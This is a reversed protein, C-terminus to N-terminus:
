LLMFEVIVLALKGTRKEETTFRFMHLLPSDFGSVM